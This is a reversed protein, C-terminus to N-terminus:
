AGYVSVSVTIDLSLASLSQQLDATLILSATADTGLYCDLICRHGSDVLASFIHERGRLTRVWYRLQSPLPRNEQSTPLFKKWGGWSYTSDFTLHGSTKRDGRKWAKAPRLKLARSIHAPDLDNGLIMLTVSSIYEPNHDINPM